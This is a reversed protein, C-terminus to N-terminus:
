YLEAWMRSSADTLLRSLFIAERELPAQTLCFTHSVPLATPMRLFGISLRRHTPPLYLAPADLILFLDRHVPPCLPCPSMLSTPLRPLPEQQQRDWHQVM